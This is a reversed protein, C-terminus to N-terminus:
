LCKLGITPGTFNDRSRVFGVSASNWSSKRYYQALQKTDLHGPAFSEPRMCWEKLGDHASISEDIIDVDFDSQESEVIDQYGPLWEADNSDPGSDCLYRVDEGDDESESELNSCLM